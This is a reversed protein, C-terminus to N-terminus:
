PADDGHDDETVEMTQLNLTVLRRGAKDFEIQMLRTAGRLEMTAIRGLGYSQHKVRAGPVFATAPDAREDEAVARWNGDFMFGTVKTAPSRIAHIRIHQPDSVFEVVYLWYSDGYNQANSFQLSSVEVGMKNWEGNVGKVEIFRQEGTLPDSSIIDYGPHTQAMQKALRGREREYTCTANRAIVEVALNHDSINETGEADRPKDAKQRVYSLLRRDWQEKHKSRPRRQQGPQTRNSKDGGTSTTPRGSTPPQIPPVPVGPTQAPKDRDPDQQVGQTGGGGKATSDGTTVPKGDPASTGDPSADPPETSGGIDTLEPSTLDEPEGVQEAHLFPIGADSLARHAEEVPMSMLPRLSLTLKSIEFGSEEPMLQHLLANLVHPFSREGVPRALSLHRRDIDYFAQAPSPSALVENDEGLHVTAQIRVADYSFAKLDAFAQSVKNRVVAPKDHLLRAVIQDRERLQQAVSPESQQEGDVFELAVHACESLRKVGFKQLLPWLEPVPKCLAQNLKGNFFTAHWESDHLLVEDPHRLQHLLNIITPATQLRSLDPNSLQDAGDLRALGAFCAEFVSCDAGELPKGQEFYAGVIDLVLDVYDTADPSNKVGIATFFPKYLELNGPITFAFRGLQQPTWYLQNPRFFTKQSEVYICLSGKLRDIAPDKKGARENLVQYTLVHPDINHEACYLLHKIVLETAPTVDIGLTVLLDSNLRNATFDLIHAQTSFAESRFPAYLENAAYWQKDDGDAPFCKADGLRAVADQFAKKDKWEKYNDCLVYFADGSARRAEDSPTYRKAMYLIRDVLHEAIPSRRIGLSDLFSTVSHPRPIRKRDLWLHSADGLVKVLEETRHYTNGPTTWNGDQTPILPLSALSRRIDEDNILLPHVALETVLRPYKTPDIPGENGFFRPLVKVVFAEITQSPVGIKASVFQKAIGELVAPDLLDALGTPDTFADPLLVHNANVLGKSSLWVPLDRLAKYVANDPKGLRDLEAFLSYLDRLKGKETGIVDEVSQASAITTQLHSAVVGLTLPKVFRAIRPYELTAQSLIELRPLLAAVKEPNLPPSAIYSQSATVLYEDETVLFPITLLKQISPKQANSQASGEPILENVISWLPRYFTKIREDPVKTEGAVHRSFAEAMLNTLPELTLIPAGLQNLANWYARLEEIVVRGGIEELAKVQTGNLVASTLLVGSPLQATGDQALAIRSKSGTVKIKEWFKSFCAPHNQSRTLDYARSVIQWLQTHGLEKLLTKPDRALEVAAVDILM